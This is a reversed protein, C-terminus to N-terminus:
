LKREHRSVRMREGSRVSSFRSRQLALEPFHVVHNVLVLLIPMPSEIHTRNELAVCFRNTEIDRLKLSVVCALYNLAANKEVALTAMREAHLSRRRNEQIAFLHGELREDRGILQLRKDVVLEGRM